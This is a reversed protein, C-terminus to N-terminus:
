DAKRKGKKVVKKTCIDIEHGCNYCGISDGQRWAKVKKGPKPKPLCNPCFRSSFDLRIGLSELDHANLYGTKELSAQESGFTVDCGVFATGESREIMGAYAISEDVSGYDVWLGELRRKFAAM